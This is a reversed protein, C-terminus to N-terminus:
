ISYSFGLHHFSHILLGIALSTKAKIPDSCEKMMFLGMAIAKEIKTVHWTKTMHELLFTVIVVHSM